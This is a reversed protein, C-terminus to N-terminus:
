TAAAYGNKMIVLIADTGNTLASTVGTTLGNHWFGGDGMINIVRSKFNAAIGAGSALGLGYGLMTNGINFPPLSAFIHCGVDGTIHTKGIVREAIKIASFVPREPCGVCFGPPRAPVPAGLLDAAKDKVLRIEETAATWQGSPDGEPWVQSLYQALGKLVAEGTYEGAPP